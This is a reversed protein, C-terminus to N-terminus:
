IQKTFFCRVSNDNQCFCLLDPASTCNYAYAAALNASAHKLPKRPSAPTISHENTSEGTLYIEVDMLIIKDNIHKYLHEESQLM